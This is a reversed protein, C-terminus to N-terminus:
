TLFEKTAVGIVNVIGKSAYSFSVRYKAGMRFKFIEFSVLTMCHGQSRLRKVLFLWKPDHQQLGRPM